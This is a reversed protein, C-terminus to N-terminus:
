FILIFVIYLAIWLADMFNWYVRFLELKLIQHPDTLWIIKKIENKNAISIQVILVCLYIFGGVFHVLHLFSILFLLVDSQTNPQIIVTYRFEFWGIIQSLMFLTGLIGCIYLRILVAKLRESKAFLLIPQISYTSLIILLSSFIFAKPTEYSNLQELKSKQIFVLLMSSFLIFIGSMTLYLFTKYQHLSEIKTLLKSNGNM